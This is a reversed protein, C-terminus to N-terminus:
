LFGPTEEPSKSSRNSFSIKGGLIASLGNLPLFVKIILAVHTIIIKTTFFVVQASLEAPYLMQRRLLPDPTRTGKLAGISATLQL